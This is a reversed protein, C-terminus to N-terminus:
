RIYGIVTNLGEIDKPAIKLTSQPMGTGGYVYPFRYLGRDIITPLDPIILSVNGVSSGTVEEVEKPKALKIEQVKLLEKVAVLDVRGYDGSIIMSYYGVDTKVILTPATQGVQIGLYEAGEQATNLQKNHRIIEYDVQQNELLLILQEM